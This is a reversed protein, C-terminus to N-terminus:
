ISSNKSARRSPKAFLYRVGLGMVNSGVDNAAFLGFAGSRHHLRYFVQWQPHAPLGATVEFSIFNLWRQPGEDPDTEAADILENTTLGNTYSVGEGIAITTLLKHNWPFKSWRLHAFLVIEEIGVDQVRDDRYALLAAPEIEAGIYAAMRNFFNEDSLHWDLEAAYMTEHASEFKFALSPKFKEESGAGVYVAFADPKYWAKNGPEEEAHLSSMLFILNWVLFMVAQHRTKM